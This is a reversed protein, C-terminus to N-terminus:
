VPPLSPPLVGERFQGSSPVKLVGESRRKLNPAFTAVPTKGTSTAVDAVPAPLVQSGAVSSQNVTAAANGGTARVPRPPHQEWLRIANKQLRQEFPSFPPNKKINEAIDADIEVIGGRHAQAAAELAAILEGDKAPDLALVGINGGVSNFPVPRKNVFFPLAVNVKKFHKMNKPKSEPPGLGPPGLGLAILNALEGPGTDPGTLVYNVDSSATIPPAPAPQPPEVTAEARPNPHPPRPQPPAVPELEPPLEPELPPELPVAYGPPEYVHPANPGGIPEGTPSTHAAMAESLTAHVRRDEPPSPYFKLPETPPAEANQADITEQAMLPMARERRKVWERHAKTRKDGIPEPDAVASQEPKPIMTETNM